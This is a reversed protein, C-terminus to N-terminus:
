INLKSTCTVYSKNDYFISDPVWTWISSSAKQMKSQALTRLLPMFADRRGKAILLNNPM